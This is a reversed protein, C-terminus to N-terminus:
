AFGPGSYSAPPASDGQASAIQALLASPSTGPLVTLRPLRYPDSASSALGPVVTTAGTYGATKVAAAVTADYHGLPYSFWNVPAGYRQGLLARASLETQLQGSGLGILGTHSLGQTDLEWGASILGRVEADSIGGEAPSLGNVVLNEDGVWGLTRLVPLANAYQSHYGTDFTLVIPKGAGLRNGHAWHSELQDLTVAHYGAAKLAQMQASFQDPPVYLSPNGAGPPPAAIVHYMLVPVSATAASPTTSTHHAPPTTRSAHKASAGPRSSGGGPTGFAILVGALVVAALAAAAGARGVWGAQRRPRRDPARRSRIQGSSM